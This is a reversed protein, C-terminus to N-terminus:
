KAECVSYIYLQDLNFLYQLNSIELSFIHHWCRSEFGRGELGLRRAETLERRITGDRSEIKVM